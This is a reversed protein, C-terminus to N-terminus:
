TPEYDTLADEFYSRDGCDSEDFVGNRVEGETKQSHGIYNHHVDQSGSAVTTLDFSDDRGGGAIAMDIGRLTQQRTQQLSTDRRDWSFNGPAAPLTSSNVAETEHGIALSLNDRADPYASVILYNPIPWDPAPNRLPIALNFVIQLQDLSDHNIAELIAKVEHYNEELWILSVVSISSHEYALASALGPNRLLSQLELSLDWDDKEKGEVKQHIQIHRVWKDFDSFYSACFGCGYNNSSQWQTPGFVSQRGRCTKHVYPRKYPRQCLTCM